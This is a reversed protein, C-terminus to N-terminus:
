SSIIYANTRQSRTLSRALLMNFSLCLWVFLGVIKKISNTQGVCYFKERIRNFIQTLTVRRKMKTEHTKRNIKVNERQQLYANLKHPKDSIGCKLCIWETPKCKRRFLTLKGTFKWYCVRANTLRNKTTWTWNLFFDYARASNKQFDTLKGAFISRFCLAPLDPVNRLIKLPFDLLDRM